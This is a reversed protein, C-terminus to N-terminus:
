AAKLRLIMRRELREIAAYVVSVVRRPVREVVPTSGVPVETWDEPKLRSAVAEGVRSIPGYQRLGHRHGRADTITWERVQKTEM